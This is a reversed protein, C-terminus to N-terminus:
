TLKVTNQWFTQRIQTMFGKFMLIKNDTVVNVKTGSSTHLIFKYTLLATCREWPEWRWCYTTGQLWTNIFNANVTTLSLSQFTNYQWWPVPEYSRFTDSNWLWFSKMFNDFDKQVIAVLAKETMTYNVSQFQVKMVFVRHNWFLLMAVMQYKCWSLISFTHWTKSFGLM